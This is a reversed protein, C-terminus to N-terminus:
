RSWEDEEIKDYKNRYEMVEEANNNRRIILYEGKAHSLAEDFTKFIDPGTYSGDTNKIYLKYIM